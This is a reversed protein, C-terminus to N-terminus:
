FIHPRITAEVIKKEEKARTQHRKPQNAQNLLQINKTITQSVTDRGIRLTKTARM